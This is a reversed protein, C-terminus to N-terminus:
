LPLRRATEYVGITLGFRGGLGQDPIGNFQQVGACAAFLYADSTEDGVGGSLSRIFFVPRRSSLFPYFFFGYEVCGRCEARKGM